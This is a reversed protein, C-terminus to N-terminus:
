YLHLHLQDIPKTSRNVWVLQMSGHVSHAIPDVDAVITYGYADQTATDLLESTSQEHAGRRSVRERIAQANVISHRYTVAIFLWLM